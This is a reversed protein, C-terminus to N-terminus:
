ATWRHLSRWHSDAGAWTVRWDDVAETRQFWADEELSASSCQKGSKITM